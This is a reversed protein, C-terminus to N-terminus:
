PKFVLQGHKFPIGSESASCNSTVLKSGYLGSKLSNNFVTDQMIYFIFNWVYGYKTGYFECFKIDFKACKTPIHVKWCLHGKWVTLSDNISVYYQPM